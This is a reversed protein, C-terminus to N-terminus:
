TAVARAPDGTAREVRGDREADVDAGGTLADVPAEDVRDVLEDAGREGGAHVLEEALGVVGRALLAGALEEPREEEDERDAEVHRAARRRASEIPAESMHM